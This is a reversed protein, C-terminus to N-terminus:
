KNYNEHGEGWVVSHNIIGDNYTNFTGWDFPEYSDINYYKCLLSLVSQDHRNNGSFEPHNYQKDNYMDSVYNMGNLMLEFWQKILNVIFDNKRLFIIGAEVQRKLLDENSFKYNLQSEIYNRLPKSTMTLDNYEDGCWGILLPKDLENLKKVINNFQNEVNELYCHMDLHVLIDNNNIQELEKMILYPKWIWYGYGRKPFVSCNNYKKFIDYIVSKIYDDLNNENLININDFLHNYKGNFFNDNVRSYDSNTSLFGIFNIM